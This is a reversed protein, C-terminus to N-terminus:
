KVSELLQEKSIASLVSFATLKNGLDRISAGVHYITNDVIIFRDHVDRMNRLEVTPFQRNLRAAEENMTRNIRASYVFAKIGEAKKAVLSLTVDDAYPDIIVIEEKASRVLQAAFEYGSWWSKANLIGESPPLNAKVFFDVQKELSLLRSDHNELKNEHSILRQNVSGGKLLHEKLVQNAWRRFKVGNPSKVRYGVSLVVDLDYHEVQYTKGDAATTAFNAVDSNCAEEKLANNIHKGITKVDRGFLLSIQQRNLWVTENEVRVEIHFEGGEPQYVIIENKEGNNASVAKYM